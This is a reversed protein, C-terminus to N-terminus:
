CGVLIQLKEFLPLIFESKMKYSAQNAILRASIPRITEIETLQNAQLKEDSEVLDVACDVLDTLCALETAGNLKIIKAQIKKNIFHNKACNLYKTAVTLNRDPLVIDKKGVVSLRGRAIKLDLLEYLNKASFELLNDNGVIGLDAIGNEVCIAVDDAPVILLRLHKVNTAFISKLSKNIYELSIIDIRQFLTLSEELINGKAIALSIGNFINNKIVEM